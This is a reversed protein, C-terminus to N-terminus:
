DPQAYCYLCGHPCKQYAGIDRSKHCGCAGRGEGQSKDKAHSVKAAKGHFGKQELLRSILDADVCAAQKVTPMGIIQGTAENTLQIKFNTVDMNSCAKLTVGRSFAKVMLFVLIQEKEERSLEVLTLGHKKLRAKTKPYPTCFSFTLERIGVDALADVIFNFDGLNNHLIGARDLWHVIPDFRVQIAEPAGAIEILRPLLSLRHKLRSVNPELECESNITYQFVHVPYQDFLEPNADYAKLWQTYDKSWWVWAKVHNPSLSVRTIPGGGHWMPNKTDVYGRAISEVMDRMFFAPIDTRRSASIVEPETLKEHQPVVLDEIDSMVFISRYEYCIKNIKSQKIFEIEFCIVLMM